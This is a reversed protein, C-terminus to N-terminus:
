EVGLFAQHIVANKDDWANQSHLQLLTLVKAIEDRANHVEEKDNSAHSWEEMALYSKLFHIFKRWRVDSLQLSNKLITKAKTRHAICLFQFLNGKRKSSQIKTGNNLGNRM